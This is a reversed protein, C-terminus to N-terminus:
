RRGGKGLRQTIEMAERELEADTKHYSSALWNGIESKLFRLKKGNKHFPIQRECCWQYVTSKAPHDPHYDRLETMNMWKDAEEAPAQHTELAKEIHEVREILYAMAKPM